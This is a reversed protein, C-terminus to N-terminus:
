GGLGEGMEWVSMLEASSVVRRGVLHTDFSQHFHEGSEGWEGPRRRTVCAECGGEESKM